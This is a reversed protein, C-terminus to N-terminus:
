RRRRRAAPAMNDSGIAKHALVRLKKRSCLGTDVQDCGFGQFRVANSRCTGGSHDILRPGGNLQWDSLFNWDM